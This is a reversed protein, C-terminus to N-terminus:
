RAGAASLTMERASELETMGLSHPEAEETM